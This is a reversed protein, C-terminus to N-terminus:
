LFFTICSFTELGNIIVRVGVQILVAMYSGAVTAFGGTMVAHLESQTLKNMYPAVVPVSEAQYIMCVSHKFESNEVIIYFYRCLLWFTTKRLYTVYCCQYLFNCYNRKNYICDVVNSNIYKFKFFVVMGIFINTAANMTEIATTGMTFQMLWAMRRVVMQMLGWYYLIAIVSSFFIVIPM